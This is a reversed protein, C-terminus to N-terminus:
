GNDMIQVQDGINLSIEQQLKTVKTNVSVRYFHNFQSPNSWSPLTEERKKIFQQQFNPTIEGTYSNKTPVICRQCPIM